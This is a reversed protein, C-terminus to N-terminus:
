VDPPAKGNRYEIDLRKQQTPSPPERTSGSPVCATIAHLITSKFTFLSLKSNLFKVHKELEMFVSLV